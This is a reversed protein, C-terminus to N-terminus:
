IQSYPRLQYSWCLLLFLLFSSNKKEVVDNNFREINRPTQMVLLKTKSVEPFCLILVVVGIHDNRESPANDYIEQFAKAYFERQRNNTCLVSIMERFNVFVDDDNNDM